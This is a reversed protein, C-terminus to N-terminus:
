FPSSLKQKIFKTCQFLKMLVKSRSICKSVNLRSHIKEPISKDHFPKSKLNLTFKSSHLRSDLFSKPITCESFWFYSKFQAIVFFFFSYLLFVLVMRLIFCFCVFRSFVWFVFFTVNYWWGDFESLHFPFRFAM